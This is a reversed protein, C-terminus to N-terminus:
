HAQNPLQTVAENIIATEAECTKLSTDFIDQYYFKM